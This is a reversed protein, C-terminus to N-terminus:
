PWRVKLGHPDAREVGDVVHTIPVVAVLRGSRGDPDVRVVGLGPTSGVANDTDPVNASLPRPGRLSRFVWNGDPSPDLIDPAPDSGDANFVSIRVHRGQFNVPNTVSYGDITAGTVAAHVLRM